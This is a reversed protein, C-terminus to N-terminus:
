MRLVKVDMSHNISYYPWQHVNIPSGNPPDREADCLGDHSGGGDDWAGCSMQDFITLTLWTGSDMPNGRRTRASTSTPKVSNWASTSSHSSTSPASRDRSVLASESMGTKECFEEKPLFM